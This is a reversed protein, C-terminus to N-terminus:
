LREPAPVLAAAFGTAVALVAVTPSAWRLANAASMGVCLFAVLWHPYWRDFAAVSPPRPSGPVTPAGNVTRRAESARRAARPRHGPRRRARRRLPIRRPRQPLRHHAAGDGPRHGAARRAARGDC